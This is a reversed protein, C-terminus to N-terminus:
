RAAKIFRDVFLGYVEDSSLTQEQMMLTNEVAKKDLIGTANTAAKVNAVGAVLVADDMQAFDAKIAAAIEEPSTKLVWDNAAKVANVFSQVLEPDKEALDPRTFVNEMNFPVLAPDEGRANNILMIAKGRAVAQEAVPITQLIV